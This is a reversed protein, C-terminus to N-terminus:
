WRASRIAPAPRGRLSVGPGCHSYAGDAKVRDAPIPRRLHLQNSSALAGALRAACMHDVQHAGKKFPGTSGALLSALRFHPIKNSPEPLEFSSRSIGGAQHRVRFGPERVVLILAITEAGSFINGVDRQGYDVPDYLFRGLHVPAVATLAIRLRTALSSPRNTVPIPFAARM